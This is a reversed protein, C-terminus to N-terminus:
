HCATSHPAAAATTPPTCPLLLASASKSPCTPQLFPGLLTLLTPFFCPRGHIWAARANYYPPM